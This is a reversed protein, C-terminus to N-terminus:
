EGDFESEGDTTVPHESESENDAPPTGFDWGGNLHRYREAARQFQLQENTNRHSAVDSESDSDTYRRTREDAYMNQWDVSDNHVDELFCQMATDIATRVYSPIKVKSSQTLNNATTLFFYMLGLKDQQSYQLAVLLVGM